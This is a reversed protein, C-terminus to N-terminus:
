IIGDKITKKIILKTSVYKIFIPVNGSSHRNDILCGIVFATSLKVTLGPKMANVFPKLANTYRFKNLGNSTKKVWIGQHYVIATNVAKPYIVTPIRNAIIVAKNNVNMPAQPIQDWEIIM